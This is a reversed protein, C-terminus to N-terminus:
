GGHRGGGEADVDEGEEGLHEGVDQAAADELAGGGVDGVGGVGGVDAGGDSLVVKVVEAIVAVVGLVVADVGRGVTAAGAHDDLALGDPVGDLVRGGLVGGTRAADKEGGFALGEGLGEAGVEGLGFAEQQEAAM